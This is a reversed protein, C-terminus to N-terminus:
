AFSGSVYATAGNTLTTSGNFLEGKAALLSGSPIVIVYETSNAAIPCSTDIMALTETTGGYSMNLRDVNTPAGGTNQLAIYSWSTLPVANTCHATLNSGGINHSLTAATASVHASDTCGNCGQLAAYIRSGVLIGSLSVALILLFTILKKEM